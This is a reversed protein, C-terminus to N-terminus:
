HTQDSMAIMESSFFPEDGPKYLEEPKKHPKKPQYNESKVLGIGPAYWDRHHKVFVAMVLKNQTMKTLMDYEIVFTNFTGAAVTVVEYNTVKRNNLQVEVVLGKDKHFFQCNEFILGVQIDVPM